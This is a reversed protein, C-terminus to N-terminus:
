KYFGAKDHLHSGDKTWLVEFENKVGILMEELWVFTLQGTIDPHDRCFEKMDKKRSTKTIWHNKM